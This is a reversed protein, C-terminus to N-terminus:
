SFCGCTCAETHGAAPWARIGMDWCFTVAAAMSRILLLPRKLGFSLAVFTCSLILYITMRTPTIEQVEKKGFLV